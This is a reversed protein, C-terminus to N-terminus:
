NNRLVLCGAIMDHLAQKRETFGALVCDIVRYLFGIYPVMALGQGSWFRGSAKGFSIRNGALDAVYLGLAKKGLTAQWASSEMLAWYLWSAVAGLITLFLIRPLIAMVMQTVFQPDQPNTQAARVFEPILGAFFIFFIILFPIGIVLNDIIIAVFRLWFGAYASTGAQAPSAVAVIAQGAAAGAYAPMAASSSSGVNYGVIPRGCVGCFASNDATQKGCSSCFM